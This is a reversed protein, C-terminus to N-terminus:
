KVYDESDPISDIRDILPNKFAHDWTGPPGLARHHKCPSKSFCCIEPYKPSIDERPHSCPISPAGNELEGCLRIAYGAIDMVSDKLSESPLGKNTLIRNVKDLIRILIFLENFRERPIGKPFAKELIERTFKISDGYSANKEDCLSGIKAGINGYKSM